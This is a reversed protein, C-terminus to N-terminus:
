EYKSGDPMTAGRLSLAQSLQEQTAKAGQLDAGSLDVSSLDTGTLDANKLRAGRLNGSISFTKLNAGELWSNELNVEGLNAKELNAGELYTASLDAGWFYCGELDANKMNVGNLYIGELWANLEMDSFDMDGLTMVPSDKNLLNAGYLFQLIVGKRQGSLRPLIMSTWGLAVNKASVNASEEEDLLDHELLLNSIRDLYASLMAEQQNDDARRQENQKETRSYLVGGVALVTPVILLGMWDWLTKRPRIEENSQKLTACQGFGTWNCGYNLKGLVIVTTLGLLAIVFVSAQRSKGLKSFRKM